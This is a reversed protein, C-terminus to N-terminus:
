YTLTQSLLLWQRHRWCFATLLMLMCMDRGHCWGTDRAELEHTNPSV